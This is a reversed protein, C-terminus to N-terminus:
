RPTKASSKLKERVFRLEDERSRLKGRLKEALVGGLISSYEPGPEVGMEKLDTGSILPKVKRLELLYRSIEKKVVEEKTLSMAFLLAEVDLGSLEDYIAAPDKLPLNRLCGTAARIGRKVARKVRPPVILRDLLAERRTDKLASTLAMLYITTKDPKEEQFSLGFWLLSNHVSALLQELEDTLELDKDLVGLLGYEALRKIVRYPEAEEFILVMEDYIRSGTLKSFLDMKISSKILSDTQKSLKFGFREAFRIARFARTPDEIFSLNHLVRITKDKLDRQGGFFDVMQGFSKPNLRVALTNITFDRRYLDKKISSLRVRPLAAPTEYYETRATAVDLRLSDKIIKATSFREHVNVRAGIKEAFKRAFVIGDGEIVIDIDLNREGRLLDRITGGVLYANFQLEEAVKGALTLLECIEPPFRDRIWTALNKGGSPREETAVESIRSKRLFDEYMSRLLDTRTIAGVVEDDVLVPMFRQNHEIMMKEIERQPTDPEATMADTNTFDLVPSKKFGHFIAKEVTERSLLGIYRGEELVPLVNVGYRTMKSEADKLTKGVEITIVPKTMADAAVKGPRVSSRVAESVKEELIELPEEGVTASAATPHGGGGFGELVESIDLEHVRSRGIMVVKGDMRLLLVLADIDEMDMMRHALHAADGMYTGRSAKAIKVRVGDLVLETATNVLENLLELEERNLETKLYASVIKLSAGNKLLFAVAKLDRESTTPFMLNGTEEYIGLCLLTAEMPSIATGKEMFMETFITATSGVDEIVEVEGRIDGKRHPHHDYIHVTVSPDACLKGLQGLRRPSKTDVIVARRVESVDLDKLRTVEVPHFSDIFDRVKKEQSGPFVLRAGPYLRKAAVMSAFADFDANVHSIIIDM